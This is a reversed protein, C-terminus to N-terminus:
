THLTNVACRASSSICKDTFGNASIYAHADYSLIHTVEIPAYKSSAFTCVNILLGNPQSLNVIDILKETCAYFEKM